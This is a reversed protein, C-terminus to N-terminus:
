GPSRKDSAQYHVRVVIAEVSHVVKMGLNREVLERGGM